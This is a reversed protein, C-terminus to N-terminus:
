NHTKAEIKAAFTQVAIKGDRILFTDTGFVIDAAACNAHWVIYAIDDAVQLTDMTFEYTGPKFLSDLGSEFFARIAPRGKVAGDPGIVTSDDTYDGLIADLDGATLARLHHELVQRTTDIQTPM